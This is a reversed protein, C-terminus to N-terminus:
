TPRYLKNGYRCKWSLLYYIDGEDHRSTIYRKREPPQIVLTARCPRCSFCKSVCVPPRSGVQLKERENVSGAKNGPFGLGVLKSPLFVIFSVLIAAIKLKNKYYSSAAAM